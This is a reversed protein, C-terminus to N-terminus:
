EVAKGKIRLLTRATGETKKDFKLFAGSSGDWNKFEKAYKVKKAEKPYQAQLDALELAWKAWTADSVINEDLVYYIYSHVLMQQRRQLIREEITQEVNTKM